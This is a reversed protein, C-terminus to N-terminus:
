QCERVRVTHPPQFRVLIHVFILFVLVLNEGPQEKSQVDAVPSQIWSVTRELRSVVVRTWPGANKLAAIFTYFVQPDTEVQILVIHLLRRAKEDGSISNYRLYVIDRPKLIGSPILHDAIDNPSQKVCSILVPYCQTLAKYEPTNM